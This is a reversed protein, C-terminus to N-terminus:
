AQHGINWLLLSGADYESSTFNTEVMMSIQPSETPVVKTACGTASLVVALLISMFIAIM